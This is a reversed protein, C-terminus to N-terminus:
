YSINLGYIATPILESNYAASSSNGAMLTNGFGMNGLNDCYCYRTYWNNADYCGITFYASVGDLRIPQVKFIDEYTTTTSTNQKWQVLIHSYNTVLSSLEINGATMNSSPSLNTWLLTKTPVKSYLDDLADSVSAQGNKNYDVQSALYQGTAYVSIGSILIAGIVIGIILKYNKKVFNM